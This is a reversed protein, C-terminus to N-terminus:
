LSHCFSPGTSWGHALGLFIDARLESLGPVWNGLYSQATRMTKCVPLGWAWCVPVAEPRSRGIGPAGVFTPTPCLPLWLLPTGWLAAPAGPHPLWSWLVRAGEHMPAWRRVGGARGGVDDEEPGWPLTQIQSLSLGALPCTPAPRLPALRPDAPGEAVHSVQRDQTHTHGRGRGPWAYAIISDRESSAGRWVEEWLGRSAQNFMVPAVGSDPAKLGM